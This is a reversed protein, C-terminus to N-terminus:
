LEPIYPALTWFYSVDIYYLNTAEKAEAEITQAEGLLACYTGLSCGWYLNEMLIDEFGVRVHISVKGSAIFYIRRNSDGQKFLFTGQELFLDKM